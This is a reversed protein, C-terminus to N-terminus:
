FASARQLGATVRWRQARYRHAYKMVLGTFKFMVESLSELTTLMFEKPKGGLQTLAVGFLISWFVIQLLENKVAARSGSEPVIHNLFDGLTHTKKAPTGSSNLRPKTLEM